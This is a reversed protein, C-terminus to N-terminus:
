ADRRACILATVFTDYFRSGLAHVLRAIVGSVSLSHTHQRHLFFWNSQPLMNSDRLHDRASLNPTLPRDHQHSTPGCSRIGPEPNPTGQQTSMLLALCSLHWSALPPPHIVKSAGIPKRVPYFQPNHSNRQSSSMRELFYIENTGRAFM